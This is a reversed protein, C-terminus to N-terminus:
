DLWEVVPELWVPEPSYFLGHGRGTHLVVERIELDPIRDFAERCTGAEGDASDYISLIRGRLYQARQQLFRDYSRRFMTGPRGCGALVIYNVAPEQVLSAVILAMQGGKSHGVVTIHRAPTGAELLDRVRDAVHEAYELPQVSEQRVESVVKYGANTLADIIADYRYRGHKPHPANLGHTELWAGHMYFIYKDTSESKEEPIDANSEAWSVAPGGGFLWISLLLVSLRTLPPPCRSFVNRM